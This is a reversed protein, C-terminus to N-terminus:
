GVSFLIGASVGVSMLVFALLAALQVPRHRYFTEPDQWTWGVAAAAPILALAGYSFVAPIRVSFSAWALSLIALGYVLPLLRSARLKGLRVVLNRKGAGLDAQYDPFENVWLFAAICLGLPLSVWLVELSYAGTLMVYTAMAIAPGYILVVDLEGLGRYALRLPPGHYSWGLFLAATGLWFVSMERCFVIIAGLCLGAISFAAAVSWTQSRTLLGDVLVRKGGSFETRDEPLVALDTGSDYDFVDGWANKAVEMCFMAVALVALWLLSFEGDRVAMAAGIAM